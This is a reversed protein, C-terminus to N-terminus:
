LQWNSTPLLLSKAPRVIGLASNFLATAPATVALTTLRFRPSKYAPDVKTVSEVIQRNQIQWSSRGNCTPTRFATASIRRNESGASQNWTSDSSFIASRPVLGAWTCSTPSPEAQCIPWWHIVRGLSWSGTLVAASTVSLASSALSAAVSSLALSTLPWSM